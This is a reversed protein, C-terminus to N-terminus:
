ALLYDFIFNQHKLTISHNIDRIFNSQMILSFNIDLDTLDIYKIQRIILLPPINKNRFECVFIM